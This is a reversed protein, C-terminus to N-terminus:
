KEPKKKRTKKGTPLIKNKSHEIHPLHNMCKGHKKKTKRKNNAYICDTKCYMNAQHGKAPTFHETKSFLLDKECWGWACKMLLRDISTPKKEHFLRHILNSLLIWSKHSHKPQYTNRLSSPRASSIWLDCGGTSKHLFNTYQVERVPGTRPDTSWICGWPRALKQMFLAAM